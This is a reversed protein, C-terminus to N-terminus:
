GVRACSRRRGEGPGLCHRADDTSRELEHWQRNREEHRAHVERLRRELSSLREEFRVRRAYPMSGALRRARALWGEVERFDRSLFRYEDDVDVCGGYAYAAWLRIEHM